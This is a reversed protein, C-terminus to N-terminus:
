RKRFYWYLMSGLSLILLNLCVKSRKDAHTQPLSIALNSQCKALLQQSTIQHISPYMKHPKISNISTLSYINRQNVRDIALPMSLIENTKKSIGVLSQDLNFARKVMKSAGFEVPLVSEEVRETAPQQKITEVVEPKPTMPYAAKVELKVVKSVVPKPVETKNVDVKAQDSELAENRLDVPTEVKVETELKSENTTSKDVTEAVPEEKITEVVESKLTKPDVTKVEPEEIKPVATKSAEPNLAEPNVQTPEAKANKLDVPTEVKVATEVETETTTSKDVTEAVPEQKVTEILESKPIKSDVTKVEPEEVKPVATKSAELNLAGSKVQITEAKANKLDVPTEVKVATEM